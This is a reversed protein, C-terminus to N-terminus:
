SKKLVPEIVTNILEVLYLGASTGVALRKGDPSWQITSIKGLYPFRIRAASSHFVSRAAIGGAIIGGILSGIVLESLSWVVLENNETSAALWLGNPSFAFSETRSLEALMAGTGADYLRAPRYQFTTLLQAGLPSFAYDIVDFAQLGPLEALTSANWLQLRYPGWRSGSATAIRSGDPSFVCRAVVDSKGPILTFVTACALPKGTSGAWVRLTGDGSATAIRRGDPSFVCAYVAQSHGSLSALVKGKFVGSLTVISNLDDVSVLREGDPSIDMAVVGFRNKPLDAIVRGTETDFLRLVTGSEVASVFLRGHPLFSGARGHGSVKQEAILAGNSGDWFRLKGDSSISAIRRGDPSFECYHLFSTHGTMTKVLAGVASTRLILIAEGSSATLIRGGDPSFRCLDVAGALTEEAKEDEAGALDWIQLTSGSASVLRTGDPSFARDAVRGTFGALKFLEAGSSADIVRGDFFIRNGDKTFAPRKGAGSGRAGITGGALTLALRRNETEWLRFAGDLSVDYIWKGDPSFGCAIMPERREGFSGINDGTRADWLGMIGYGQCGSSAVIRQGGPSFGCDLVYIFYDLDPGRPHEILKAIEGSTGADWLRLTGDKSGSVAKTGDPSLAGCNLEGAHGVLISVLAGNRGDWIRLSLDSKGIEGRSISLIRSGDRSFSCGMVPGAHGTMEALRAGTAAEWLILTGDASGSVIRHGDPSFACRWVPKKHGSLNTIEMGTFADWLKLSGDESASVIRQGDPSVDYPTGSEINGPAADDTLVMM